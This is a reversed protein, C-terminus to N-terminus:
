PVRCSVIPLSTTITGYAGRSASGSDLFTFKSQRRNSMDLIEKPLWRGTSEPPCTLNTWDTRLLLSLKPCPGRYKIYLVYRPTV